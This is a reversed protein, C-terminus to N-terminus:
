HQIPTSPLSLLSNPLRATYSFALKETSFCSPSFGIWIQMRCYRQRAERESQSSVQKWVSKSPVITKSDSSEEAMLQKRKTQKRQQSSPRSSPQTALCPIMFGAKQASFIALTRHEFLANGAPRRKCDMRSEAFCWNM